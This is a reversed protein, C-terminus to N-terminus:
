SEFDRVHLMFFCMLENLDCDAFGDTRLVLFFVHVNFDNLLQPSISWKPTPM